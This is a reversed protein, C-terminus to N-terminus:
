APSHTVLPDVDRNYLDVVQWFHFSNPSQTSHKKTRLPKSVAESNEHIDTSIVLSALVRGWENFSCINKESTKHIVHKNNETRAMNRAVVGRRLM